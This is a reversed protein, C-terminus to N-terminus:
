RDGPIAAAGASRWLLAAAGYGGFVSLLRDIVNIPIRSLIETAASPLNKRLLALRFIDLDSNSSGGFPNILVATLGGLISIVICMVFSLLLLVVLTNMLPRLRNNFPATELEGTKVATGAGFRLEAPFLRIFLATVLAAAANCFAYLLDAWGYFRVMNVIPNTLLGTLVGCLPGGYFTMAVTFLTDMFLPIGLADRFFNGTLVNLAAGGLCLLPLAAIRKWDRKSEPGTKM